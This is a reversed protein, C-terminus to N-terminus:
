IALVTAVATAMLAVQLSLAFRLKNEETIPSGTWMSRGLDFRLLGAMYTVFQRWLPQDLGLKAREADLMKQDLFQNQGGTFRIEVVDGPLVRLLVFILVAVGVLTPIMLLVRKLIYRTM